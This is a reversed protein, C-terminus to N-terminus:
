RTQNSTTTSVARWGADTKIWRNTFQQVQPALQGRGRPRNRLASRGTVTATDGTIVIALDESMANAPRARDLTKVVAMLYDAKTMVAGNADAVTYDDALIRNLAHANRLRLAEDWDRELQRIEDEDTVTRSVAAVDAHVSVSPMVTMFVMVLGFVYRSM